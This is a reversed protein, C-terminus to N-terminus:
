KVDWYFSPLVFIDTFEVLAAVITHWGDLVSTDAM